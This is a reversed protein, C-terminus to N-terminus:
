GGRARRWGERIEERLQEWSDGRRSTGGEYTRRLDPEIDEFERGAYRDDYGAEYGFRYNGEAEDFTRAGGVSRQRGTFHEQFGARARAYDEDIDVRQKRVTDTIEQHETTREKNIVVEGTVVAEKSVIAEEGRVPVRITGEQFAAEAEREGLPRDAVERREVHVEERM